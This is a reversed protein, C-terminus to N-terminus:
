AKKAKIWEDVMQEVVSIPVSGKSLLLDHFERIDFDEGLKESARKRLEKFKLEGVKYSVAQGPWGIYRDVEVEIDKRTKPSNDIFYQIAQERTWGLAHIGPDVVLRIARWMEYTLQGYKSYPDTYFGMEEGLSEAYLGWGEIYVTYGLFRKFEPQDEIEQELAIQLHHGPVAEHLSLAEMEWKPRSTLDYTNALFYGPVANKASGRQYRATTYYKELYEPVPIVGYPMRPLHGFLKVLEPDARKCIDRYDQLLEERSNHFFQPDTRMFENFANLDGDFGSESKVKEMEKKIRAVESLGLEHIEKATMELTTFSNIRSQYKEQGNPLDALGITERCAPIYTEVMFSLLNEYAPVLSSKIIEIARDQYERKRNGDFAELSKFAEYFPSLTPDETLLNEIQEPVGVVTTRPSTLNKDIGAQMIQITNSVQIEASSMLSFLHEMDQDTQKKHRKFVDAVYQHVGGQQSIPFYFMDNAFFELSADVDQKLLRFYTKHYDDLVDEDIKDIASKLQNLEEVEEDVKDLNFDSWQGEYGEYGMGTAYIPNNRVMMDEYFRFLADVRQTANEFNNADVIEDLSYSKDIQQESKQSQIASENCANHLTLIVLATAIIFKPM